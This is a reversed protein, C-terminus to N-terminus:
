AVEPYLSKTEQKVLTTLKLSAIFLLSLLTFLATQYWVAPHSNGFLFPQGPIYFLLYLIWGMANGSRKALFFNCDRLKWTNYVTAILLILVGAGYMELYFPTTGVIYYWFLGACVTFFFYPWKLFQLLVGCVLQWIKKLVRSEAAEIYKRFGEKGGFSRHAKILAEKFSIEPNEREANEVATAFHDILEAQVDYYKVGNIRLYRRIATIREPSM